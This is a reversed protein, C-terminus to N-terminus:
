ALATPAVWDRRVPQGSQHSVQILTHKKRRERERERRASLRSGDGGGKGDSGPKTQCVNM